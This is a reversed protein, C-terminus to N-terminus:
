SLAGAMIYAGLLLLSVFFLRRFQPESLSRRIRRGAAMGIIAPLLAAASLAGREATLLGNGGLAAALALTSVSFLMGMAQILMDRPLGLAQLYMVGPVVFSGTMGTLVGNIAGMLPGAWRTRRADLAFRVGVLSVGAYVALLLGLLASLLALDVRTLAAAGLWVTAGAMLLFPWTRRLAAGGQGGVVAQWLNTVLSPVLLLNMAEPLGLAVTLLALSVTPLGLGIVGKVAGAVLFTGAVALITFADFM